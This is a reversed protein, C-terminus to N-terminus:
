LVVLVTPSWCLAGCIARCHFLSIRKPSMKIIPRQVFGMNLCSCYKSLLIGYMFNPLYIVLNSHGCSCVSLHRCKKSGDQNDKMPFYGCDIKPFSNSSLVGDLYNQLFRTIFVKLLTDVLAFRCAAAMKVVMNNDYM